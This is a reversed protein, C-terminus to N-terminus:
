NPHKHRGNHAFENVAIIPLGNTGPPPVQHDFSVHVFKSHRVIEQEHLNHALEAPQQQLSHAYIARAQAAVRERAIDAPPTIALITVATDGRIVIGFPSLLQQLHRHIELELRPWLAGNALEIETRVGCVARTTRGVRDFVLNNLTDGSLTVIGSRMQALCLRPDFAYLVKVVVSVVLGDTTPADVQVPPPFRLATPIPDGYSTGLGARYHYGPELFSVVRGHQIVPLVTNDEVFRYGIKLWFRHSFSTDSLM